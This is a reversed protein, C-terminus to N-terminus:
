SLPEVNWIEKAYELVARDSSFYGMRATNLISRKTWEEADLYSSSVQDQCEIYSRYDALVMFSESQRFLSDVLPKFLFPDGPSFFGSAIMDMAARLEPDGDYYAQPRYGEKKKKLVEEETLGFLFFNEKGVEEMIEINAGDLTGIILAGNMAFKMNGTGSAEMGATSIQQSLDAGAIVKEAQSVCYNPLFAVKLKGDMSPDSNVAAGVSNILRIILKAMYYGPAAKGAFIVTRPVVLKEPDFKIRNYMTIVHLLNLVQRKYEHIRKIHVDFLSDPNVQTSLKRLIYRALREKNQRKVKRWEDRFSEDEALPELEALRSLDTIWGDGITRTILESLQPNATVIWRRPTVGNTKNNFRDPYIEHFDRFVQEKLILSHLKSVGNTSHSGVIGLHAMRVRRPEEQILSMRRVRENDGPFRKRIDNLFRRNIEYIIQMHRPLVKEMTELPWTELAEPLITHNTYGFTKVCIGWAEEWPLREEDLLIRMLEPIAITPHTDNLQVAVMEPFRSYEVKRKRFRRMIDQFTASVFFYQQKLRLERGEQVEESPYLVRSINESLVKDQMAQIYKGTNFLELNFERTSKAAWLRMNIVNDNGYGPILTDCAMAMINETDEWSHCFRGTEDAYERVRGCFRVEYMHEPREFVWPDGKRLWNDCKEVQRGNEITQYFIGYDYRIGYGYAPLRITAFSDLFCSALRGLGGNGLGADFELEEVEDLRQGHQELAEQCQNDIQMNILNNRLFRGPLFEMSLYYVRKAERSYYSRQTTIWRDVLRDRVAHAAAKFYYYPAAFSPDHGLTSALHKVMDKGLDEATDSRSIKQYPRPKDKM